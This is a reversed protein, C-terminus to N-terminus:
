RPPRCVLRVAYYRFEIGPDERARDFGARLARISRADAEGADTLLGAGSLLLDELYRLLLARRGPEFQSSVIPLTETAIDRAGLSRAIEALRRGVWPDGGALRQCRNFREWWDRIAPVEPTFAFTDNDVETCILRGGPTLVRLAEALIRRPDAVHELMWVTVAADFSGDAFPLMRADGRVLAIDECAKRASLNERAAGLHGESRDIGTLSVGPWLSRIHALEAGVGCGLELLSRCGALDWNRFVNPALVDTQEALRHQENRSYGHIYGSSVIPPRRVFVPTKTM